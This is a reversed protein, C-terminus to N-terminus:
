LIKIWSHDFGITDLFKDCDMSESLKIEFRTANAPIETHITFQSGHPQWTFKQKNTKIDLGILNGNEKEKWIYDNTRFRQNEEEFIIYSKLDDSRVLINTRVQKYNDQAINIRENWIALVARGTQQIDKHPDTIGYSYDPSCRGSILRLTKVSDIHSHKVTKMSWAMDKLTVDAIGVPSELHSGNIAYAFADGWENGTIDKRGTGTLYILYAGIKYVIDEPIENLPYLEKTKLHKSDRLKPRQM